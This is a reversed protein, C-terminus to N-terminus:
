KVSAVSLCFSSVSLLYARHYGLALFACPLFSPQSASLKDVWGLRWQKGGSDCIILITLFQSMHGSLRM